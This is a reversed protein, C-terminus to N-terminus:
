HGYYTWQYYYVASLALGFMSIFIFIYPAIKNRIKIEFPICAALLMTAPVLFPIFYRGQVGDVIRSGTPNFAIYFTAFISIIGAFILVNLLILKNRVPILEDKAYLAAIIISFCLLFIFIYPITVWNWGMLSILSQLYSDVSIVTSTFCAAIFHFPQHVILAIQATPFIKVGDPRQSIPAQAAAKSFVSWLLGPIAIILASFAKIITAQNTTKFLKNPVLVIGLSLFLYNTKVLPMLVAIALLAYWLKKSPLKNNPQILRIFLALFLISLGIMMNDATVVSAQFISSPLLAATFILWKLKLHRLLRIALWAIVIYLLLSGLRALLITQGVSSNLLNALWVGIISGPYAIPSYAATWMYVHESRSFQKDTFQKYTNINDVTERTSGVYNHDQLDFQVYKTLDIFNSPMEGGYSNPSRDPILKGHALQYVRAFHSTEDIGWLPPTVKVFWVGFVIAILLFLYEAQTLHQLLNKVNKDLKDNTDPNILM